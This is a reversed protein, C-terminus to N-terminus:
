KEPVVPVLPGVSEILPAFVPIGSVVFPELKAEAETSQAHSLLSGFPGAIVILILLLLHQM